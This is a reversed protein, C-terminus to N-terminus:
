KEGGTQYFTKLLLIPVSGANRKIVRTFLNYILYPFHGGRRGRDEKHMPSASLDLDLFDSIFGPQKGLPTLALTNNDTM